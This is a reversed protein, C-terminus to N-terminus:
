VKWDMPRILLMVGGLRKWKYACLTQGLIYLLTAFLLWKLDVGLLLRAAREFNVTKLLYSIVILSGGVKIFLGFKKKM